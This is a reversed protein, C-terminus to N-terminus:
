NSGEDSSDEDDDDNGGGLRARAAAPPAVAPSLLPGEQRKRSVPAVAPGGRGAGNSGNSSSPSAEGDDGDEEEESDEEEEEESSSSTTAAEDEDSSAAKARRKPGRAPAAAKKNGAAAAAGGLRDAVPAAVLRQRAAAVAALQQRQQQLLLSPAAAAAPAVGALPVGASPHLMPRRAPMAPLPPVPAAAAAKPAALAMAGGEGGGAVGELIDERGSVSLSFVFTVAGAAMSGAARQLVPDPVTDLAGGSHRAWAPLDDERPQAPGRQPRYYDAADEPLLPSPPPPQQGGNEDDNDEQEEEDSSGGGAGGAEGGGGDTGEARRLADHTTSRTAPAYTFLQKLEETSLLSGPAGGGGAGAGGEDDGAEDGGGGFGCLGGDEDAEAEEVGGGEEQKEVAARLGEKALQRCFVREDLTGRSLFRYVFVRRRQGERWVRGAAQKDDAPNWACDLMALRNAGILNLGCGGAKSSLLFCSYGGARDNFATVLATRKGVSVSGDLRVHKLGKAQCLEAVLDLTTTYNSVIVWRDGQPGRTQDLMASLLALKGSYRALTAGDSSSSSGGICGGGRGGVLAAGGTPRRPGGLCSPTLEPPLLDAIRALFDAGIGGANNGGGGGGGGRHQAQAAKTAAAVAADVLLRPDNSLKQLAVIAALVSSRSVAPAGGGRAGGRGGREEEEEEEERRAAALLLRAAAASQLFREYMREQLPTLACVVVSVLKPPLHESLLANTRRLIFRDVSGSLEKARESAERREEGSAGPERGVLIPNEFWRRFSAATGLVGPCAFDCMAFFEGLRNQIPTGSLMVRRKCPLSFLAKYTATESNRLRHAEDAILLDCSGEHRFLKAWNRFTEYSAILVEAASAVALLEAHSQKKTNNTTKATANNPPYRGAAAAGAPRGVGGSGGAVFARMLRGAEDRSMEGIPLVRARGCLWKRLEADWNGVLSVPCVIVVRRCFPTPAPAAPPAAAAAAEKGDSGDEGEEEEEEEKELRRLDAPAPSRLLTWLVAISQLTKGLGMDDALICGFARPEAAAREEGEADGQSGPPYGGGVRQGTLCQFMFRVGERQHPRLWRTLMSDVVVPARDSGGAGPAEEPPAEWLVLPEVGPPLEVTAAAAPPLLPAVAGPVPAMAGGDVDGQSSLVPPAVLRPRRFAESSGWPVFRRAAALRRRLEGSPGAAAVTPHPVKFARRLVAEGAQQVALYRSCLPARTTELSNPHL